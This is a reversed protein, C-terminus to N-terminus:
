LLSISPCVLEYSSIDIYRGTWSGAGIRFQFRHTDYVHFRAIPYGWYDFARVTAHGIGPIEEKHHYAMIVWFFPIHGIWPDIIWWNEAIANRVLWIGDARLDPNHINWHYPVYVSANMIYTPAYPIDKASPSSEAPTVPFREGLHDGLTATTAYRSPRSPPFPTLSFSDGEFSILFM